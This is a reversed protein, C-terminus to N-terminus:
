LLHLKCSRKRHVLELDENTNDQVISSFSSFNLCALILMYTILSWVLHLFILCFPLNPIKFSAGLIKYSPIKSTLSGHDGGTCFQFISTWFSLLFFPFKSSFFLCPSSSSSLSLSNSLLSVLDSPRAPIIPDYSLTKIKERISYISFDGPFRFNRIISILLFFFYDDIMM